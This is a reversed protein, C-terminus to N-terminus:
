PRGADVRGRLRGYGRYAVALPGGRHAREVVWRKAERVPDAPRDDVPRRVAPNTLLQMAVANLWLSAEALEQPAVSDPDDGRRRPGPLLDDLDGVVSWGAEALEKVVRESRRVAWDYAHEPLGIPAARRKALQPSIIHKLARVYALQPVDLTRVLENVHRVVEADVAGLSENPHDTSVPYRSGDLGVLGAFRHWLLEPPSGSPPVTVLHVHERPLGQGWRQLAGVADQARLNIWQPNRPRLQVRSLFEGYSITEGNKLREQWGAPLQRALDRATLVIHVEAFSLDDLAREIDQPRAKVLSEHSIVCTADWRRVEEVLRTWTGAVLPIEHAPIEHSSEPAHRLDLSARYHSPFNGPYLVGAARLAHRNKWLTHQLFTTGTKPAGIHLYVVPRAM